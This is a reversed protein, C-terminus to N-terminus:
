DHMKLKKNKKNKGKLIKEQREIKRKTQIDDILKSDSRLFLNGILESIPRGYLDIKKTFQAWIKSM